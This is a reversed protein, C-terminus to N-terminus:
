IREASDSVAAAMGFLACWFFLVRPYFWIYEPIGGLAAGALAAILAQAEWRSQAAPIARRARSLRVFMGFFFCCFLIGGPLGTSLFIDLYLMNSHPPQFDLLGTAYPAYAAYFNEPGLGIGLLFNDKWLAFCERWLVFRGSASANSFDLMSLFRAQLSEPLLFLAAIGLAAAPLLLIKKKYWLLVALSLALMIWGTRAYTLLMAACPLLLPLTLLVRRKVTPARLAWVLAIPLAMAIFEGCNIGHELTAGLRRYIVGDIPVDSAEAGFFYNRLGYLSIGLLTIYLVAAATRREDRRRFQAATLYALLFGTWFFLAVRLNGAKDQAWLTCLLTMLLFGPAAWGLAGPNLAERKGAACDVWYVALAALAFLVAYLNNWAGHPVCLMAETGLLLFWQSFTLGERRKPAKLPLRSLARVPLASLAGLARYVSTQEWRLM